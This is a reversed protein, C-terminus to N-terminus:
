LLSTGKEKEQDVCKYIRLLESLRIRQSSVHTASETNMLSSLSSAIKSRDSRNLHSVDLSFLITLADDFREDDYQKELISTIHPVIGNSIALRSTEAEITIALAGTGSIQISKSDSHVQLSKLLPPIIISFSDSPISPLLFNLLTVLSSHSPLLPVFRSLFTPTAILRTNRDPDNLALLQLLEVNEPISISTTLFSIIDSADRIKIGASDM